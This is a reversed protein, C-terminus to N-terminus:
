LGERFQATQVKPTCCSSVSFLCSAVIPDTYTLHVRKYADSIARHHPELDSTAYKWIQLRIELAPKPYSLRYFRDIPWICSLCISQEAGIFSWIRRCFGHRSSNFSADLLFQHLYRLHSIRHNPCSHREIRHRCWCCTHRRDDRLATNPQTAPLIPVWESELLFFSMWMVFVWQNHSPM